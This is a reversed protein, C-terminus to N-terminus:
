NVPKIIINCRPTNTSGACVTESLNTCRPNTRCSDYQANLCGSNSPAVGGSISNLSSIGRLIKSEQSEILSKNEIKYIFAQFKQEAKM